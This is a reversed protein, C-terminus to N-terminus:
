GIPRDPRPPTLTPQPPIAVAAGNVSFVEGVILTTQSVQCRGVSVDERESADVGLVDGRKAFVNGDPGILSLPDSAAEFGAPWIVSLRKGQDVELWVCGNEGALIAEVAIGGAGEFTHTPL